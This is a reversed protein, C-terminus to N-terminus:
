RTVVGKIWRRKSFVDPTVWDGTPIRRFYRRYVLASTVTTFSGVAFVSLALVPAPTSAIKEKLESVLGKESPSPTAAKASTWTLWAM